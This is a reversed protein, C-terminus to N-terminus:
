GGILGQVYADVTGACSVKDDGEPLDIYRIVSDAITACRRGCACRGITLEGRDGTILAGWRGSLALDFFAIRGRHVGDDDPEVLREGPKDLVLPIMTPPLHYRGHECGTSLSILESTGYLTMYREPAVGLVNHIRQQYDDPLIIGKLGGAALIVSDPHMGTFEPDRELVEVTRFVPAWTGLLMSPQNQFKTIAGAMREVNEQMRQQGAEQLRQFTAIDSPAAVGAAVDRRLRSTANVDSVRLPDHSLYFIQDETGFARAVRGFSDMMRHYGQVPFFSFVPRTGDPEVGTSWRWLKLQLNRDFEHDAASSKFISCRGSTGSSV